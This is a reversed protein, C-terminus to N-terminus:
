PNLDRKPTLLCSNTKGLDVIDGMLNERDHQFCSHMTKLENKTEQISELLKGVHSTFKEFNAQTDHLLIRMSTANKDLPGMPPVIIPM